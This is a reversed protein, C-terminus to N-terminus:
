FMCMLATSCKWCTGRKATFQQSKEERKSGAVSFLLKVNEELTFTLYIVCSKYKLVHDSTRKDTWSSYSVRQSCRRMTVAGSSLLM